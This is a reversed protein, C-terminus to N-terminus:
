HTRGGRDRGDAGDPACERTARVHGRRGRLPNTATGEAPSDFRGAAPMRGANNMAISRSPVPRRRGCFKARYQAREKAFAPLISSTVVFSNSRKRLKARSGPNSRRASRSRGSGRTGVYAFARARPVTASTREGRSRGLQIGNTPWASSTTNMTAIRSRKMREAGCATSRSCSAASPRRPAYVLHSYADGWDSVEKM